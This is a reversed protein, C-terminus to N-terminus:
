VFFSAVGVAVLILGISILAVIFLTGNVIRLGESEEETEGKTWWSWFHRNVRKDSIRLLLKWGCYNLIIGVMILVMGM